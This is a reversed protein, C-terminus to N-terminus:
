FPIQVPRGKYLSTGISCVPAPAPGAGLLAAGSSTSTCTLPRSAVTLHKNVAQTGIAVQLVVSM